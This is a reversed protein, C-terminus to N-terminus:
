KIVQKRGNIIYVGKQLHGQVRVGTLTYAESNGQETAVSQIGDTEEPNILIGQNAPNPNYTSKPVALFATNDNKSLFPEGGAVGYYFGVSKSDNNGNLSLKYFTFESNDGVSAPVTTYEGKVTPYLMNAGLTVAEGETPNFNYQGPADSEVLYAETGPIVNGSEIIAREIKGASTVQVTSVTVGEPVEFNGYGIKAMTAFYTKGDTASTSITLTFQSDPEPAEYKELKINGLAVNGSTRQRYLWKIYRVNEGLNNFEESQVTNGLTTYSKLDTYNEGDESTQVVFEGEISTGSGPNGKIDFTLKGPREDFHLIVANNAGQFKMKPSNNYDTGLGTTTLGSTSPIGNRGGDYEFPLEAIASAYGSLTLKMSAPAFTLNWDSKNSLNMYFNQGNETTLSLETDVLNAEVYFNGNSIAGYWTGDSDKIKFEQEIEIPKSIFYEGTEGIKNFKYDDSTTWNNFSGVLYYEREPWNGDVSIKPADGTPDVIFTWTGANKIQYNAGGGVILPMDTHNDVTVWYFQDNTDGGCWVSESSGDAVKIIKFEADVALEQDSLTYTGDANRTMEIKGTAWDTWSGAVYYKDGKISIDRPNAIQTTNFCGINGTLTIIDSAAFTIDSADNFRVVISNDGQALTVNKDDISSVTANEIKILWGQNTSTNIQEITMVEPTITNGTTLETCTPNTIELLGNYTTLTGQVKYETGVTLSLSQSNDYVCIAANADQIYATKGVCSTVVGKTLVAGTAQERAQAITLPLVVTYTASAVNSHDGDLYAIAKLTTTKDITIADTYPTSENTPETGDITYYISAGATECTIEVSQVEDYTGEAVSFTPKAVAPAETSLTLNDILRVAQTGSYYVRVYVDTYNSLNAEIKKWEGKNMDVASTNAVNTWTDGDSSVQVYWTSATANTTQKSVYCTLTNPTAVKEKTQISGSAKGNTSGYYSGENATVGSNSYKSVINTFAWDTYSSVENEFDITFGSISVPAAAQTVTVLDSKILDTISVTSIAELRFYLSRAEGENEDITYTVTGNTKDASGDFWDPENESEIKTTGDAEYFVINVGTNLKNHTFTLTGNTVGEYGASITTPSVNIFPDDSKEYIKIATIQANHSSTVKLTYQKEAAQYGSAIEYTNTGTCGTTETSVAENGVYINMKTSASAESRGVVEIKSVAFDYTPLTIYAGSKGMMFYGSSMKFNASGQGTISVTGNTLVGNNVSWDSGTFDYTVEQGWAVNLMSCLLALMFFRLKQNM